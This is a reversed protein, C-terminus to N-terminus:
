YRFVISYRTKKVPAISHTWLNRSEDRMQVLCRPPLEVSVELKGKRFIMTAHGLISLTTIVEGSERSDVHAPIMQGLHYENVSIMTPKSVVLSQDLLKQALTSLFDPLVNSVVNDKYSSGMGFRQISNRAPTKRPPKKDIKSLIETEEAETIFDYILSLGTVLKSDEKM